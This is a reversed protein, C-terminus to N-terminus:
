YLPAVTLTHTNRITYKKQICEACSARGRVKGVLPQISTLLRKVDYCANSHYLTGKSQQTAYYTYVFALNKWSLAAVCGYRFTELLNNICTLDFTDHIRMMIRHFTNPLSFHHLSLLFQIKDLLLITRLIVFASLLWSEKEAKRKQPTNSLKIWPQPLTDKSSPNKQDTRDIMEWLMGRLQCWTLM